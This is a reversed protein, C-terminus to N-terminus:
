AAEALAPRLRIRLERSYFKLARSCVESDTPGLGLVDRGRMNYAMERVYGVIISREMDGLGKGAKKECLATGYGALGDACLEVDSKDIENEERLMLERSLNCAREAAYEIGSYKM